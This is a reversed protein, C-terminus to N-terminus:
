LFIIKRAMKHHSLLPFLLSKTPQLLIVANTVYIDVGPQQTNKIKVLIQQPNKRSFMKHM